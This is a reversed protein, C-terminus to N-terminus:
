FQKFWGCLQPDQYYANIFEQLTITGDKDSDFKNFIQKVIQKVEILDACFFSSDIIGEDFNFYFSSLLKHV